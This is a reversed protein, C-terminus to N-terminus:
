NYFIITVISLLGSAGMLVLTGILTYYIAKTVGDDYLVYGVKKRRTPVIRWILYAIVLSTSQQKTRPNLYHCEDGSKKDIVSVMEIDDNDEFRPTIYVQNLLFPIVLFSLIIGIVIGTVWLFVDNLMITIAIPDHLIPPPASALEHQAIVRM